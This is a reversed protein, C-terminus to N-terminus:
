KKAATVRRVRKERKQRQAQAYDEIRQARMEQVMEAFFPNGQDIGVISEWGPRGPSIAATKLREVEAELRAVREKLSTTGNRGNTHPKM